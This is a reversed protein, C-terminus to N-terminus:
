DKKLKKIEKVLLRLRERKETNDNVRLEEKLLAVEHMKSMILQMRQNDMMELVESAHVVSTNSVVPYEEASMAHKSEGSKCAGGRPKLDPMLESIQKRRAMDHQQQLQCSAGGCSPLSLAM